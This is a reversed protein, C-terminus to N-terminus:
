EIFIKLHGNIERLLFGFYISDLARFIQLFPAPLHIEKKRFLYFRPLLSLSVPFFFYFHM